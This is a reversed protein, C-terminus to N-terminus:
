TLNTGSLGEPGAAGTGACILLDHINIRGHRTRIPIEELARKPIFVAQDAQNNSTKGLLRGSRHLIEGKASSIDPPLSKIFFTFDKSKGNFKCSNFNFAVYKKTYAPIFCKTKMDRTSHFTKTKLKSSRTGKGPRLTRVFRKMEAVLLLM